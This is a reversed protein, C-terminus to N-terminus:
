EDVVITTTKEIMSFNHTPLVFDNNCYHIIDITIHKGKYFKSHVNQSM